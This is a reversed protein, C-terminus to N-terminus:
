IFHSVIVGHQDVKNNMSNRFVFRFRLQVRKTSRLLMVSAVPYFRAFLRASPLQYLLNSGGNPGDPFYSRDPVDIRRMDLTEIYLMDLTDIKPGDLIDIKPM